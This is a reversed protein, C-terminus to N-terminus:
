QGEQDGSPSGRFWRRPPPPAKELALLEDSAPKHGPRVELVKRFMTAARTPLGGTKYITGLLYYAEANLPDDKVVGRLLEEGRHLWKPNHMYAQALVLRGRHRARGSLAGVHPELVQIADWFKGEALLAEARRLGEEAMWALDEPNQTRPAPEPLPAGHVSPPPRRPAMAPPPTPAVPAKRRKPFSTAEYAARSSPQGIVDFATGIRSFIAQVVEHLDALKGLADPHFLKALRFYAAKVEAETAERPVGLAEFHDRESVIRAHAELIMARRAELERAHAAGQSSAERQSGEAAASTSTSVTADGFRVVGAVVLSFLNRRAAEAEQPLLELVSAATLAGDIQFLLYAESPTLAMQQLTLPDAQAVLPRDLSGLAEDVLAIECVHAAERLLEETAFDLPPDAGEAAGEELAATADASRLAELLTQRAAARSVSPVGEAFAEALLAALERDEESSPSGLVGESELAVIRGGALAVLLRGEGRRVRLVGSARALHADALVALFSRPRNAEISM